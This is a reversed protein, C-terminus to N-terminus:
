VAVAAPRPFHDVREDIGSAAMETDTDCDGAVGIEKMASALSSSVNCARQPPSKACGDSRIGIETPRIRPRL